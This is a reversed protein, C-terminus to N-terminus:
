DAASCTVARCFRQHYNLTNVALTKHCWVCSCQTKPRGKLGLNPRGKLGNPQGARGSPKGKSLKGLVFGEIPTKSRKEIVGNNYWKSGRTADVTKDKPPRNTRRGRLKSPGRPIGKLLESMAKRVSDPTKQGFKHFARQTTERHFYSRNVCLSDKIHDKILEQEAWFADDPNLHESVIVASFEAKGMTRVLQTIYTGSGFYHIWLDDKPLRKKNINAARFGFYYEGTSLCTIKYVYAPIPQLNETM